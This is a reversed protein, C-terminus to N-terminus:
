CLLFPPLISWSFHLINIQKLREITVFSTPTRPIVFALWRDEEEASEVPSLDGSMWEMARKGRWITKKKSDRLVDGLRNQGGKFYTYTETKRAVHGGAWNRKTEYVRCRGSRNKKKYRIKNFTNNSTLYRGRWTIQYLKIAQVLILKIVRQIHWTKLLRVSFRKKNNRSTDSKVHEYRNVLKRFM